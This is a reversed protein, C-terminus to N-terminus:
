WTAPETGGILEAVLDSREIIQEFDGSRTTLVGCIEPRIGVEAEITGARAELLEHFAAGVTGHGLLGVRFTM